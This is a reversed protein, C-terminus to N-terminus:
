CTWKSIAFPLPFPWQQTKLKHIERCDSGRSTGLKCCKRRKGWRCWRRGSWGDTRKVQISSLIKGVSQFLPTVFLDTLSRWVLQVPPVLMLFSQMLPMVLRCACGPFTQWSECTWDSSQGGFLQMSSPFHTMPQMNLYKNLKLVLFWFRLRFKKEHWKRGGPTFLRRDPSTLWHRWRGFLFYCGSQGCNM